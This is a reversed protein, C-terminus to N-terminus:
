IEYPIGAQGLLEFGSRCAESLARAEEEPLDRWISTPHRVTAACRMSWDEDIFDDGLFAALSDLQRKPQALIDEYRLTLLRDAPLGRLINLGGELQSTWYGACATLPMRFHRFLETDFHEPLFPQLEAPVRDLNTRNQSALPHAGLHQAIMHWTMGIRYSNHERMSLAVDRGDRVIHVFRADPFTAQLRDVWLLAGSREVWLRKNFHVALWGFLRRYHEGIPASPWKPVEEALMAFLLDPKDTLHPLSTLLIAPVGTQASYRSGPEAIPYLLEPFRLDHRLLFSFYRPIAAVISWFRAGDVTEHSFTEASAFEGDTVMAFFESLSLIQRNGRLMNSLMTSGCRGTGVVFTPVSM